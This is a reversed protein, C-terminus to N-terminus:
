RFLRPTPNGPQPQATVTGIEAFGFGMTPWADAGTANKDFGAALGLPAPFDVGFVTTRLIPDDTAFIKHLLARIPPIATAIRILTFVLHHIREPPLLFMMQLLIRYM